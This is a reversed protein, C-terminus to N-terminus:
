VLHSVTFCKFTFILIVLWQKLLSTQVFLKQLLSCITQPFMQLLINFFFFFCVHHNPREKQVTLFKWKKGCDNRNEATGRPMHPRLERVLSPGEAGHLLLKSDQGSSRWPLREGSDKSLSVGRIGKRVWEKGLAWLCSDNRSNLHECSGEPRHSDAWESETETLRNKSSVM